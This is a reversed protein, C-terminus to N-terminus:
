GHVEIFGSEALRGIIADMDPIDAFEEAPTFDGLLELLGFLQHPIKQAVPVSEGHPWTLAFCTEGPEAAAASEAVPAELVATIDYNTRLLALAPHRRIAGPQPPAAQTRAEGRHVVAYAIEFAAVDPLYAPDRPEERWSVRLFDAFQRANDLYGISAPPCTQAFAHVVAERGIGLLAFTRPLVGEIKETRKRHSYKAELHLLGSNFGFVDRSLDGEGSIAASGTLHVLLQRQRDLLSLAKPARTTRRKNGRIAPSSPRSRGETDRADRAGVSGQAACRSLGLPLADSEHSQAPSQEGENVSPHESMPTVRPYCNGRSCARIADLDAIIEEAEDLREDRELVITAPTQRALTYDLLALAEGPVPYSHTDVLLPRPLFPESVTKGGALHIEKVLGSPLADLFAYADFGHNAANLYLNELDLLLGAGTERCILTLFEADTLESDPWDFMYTINELLFPVAICSQVTRVKAIVSEAVSRTKPLPLLNGLERGAIRTFALHESYAPAQLRDLLRAVKDLYALDLPADTGISLGIGHATLPIQGVLDFVAARPTEAGFLCNDLTIELVEFRSLNTRIWADIGDRYGIGIQPGLPARDSTRGSLLM